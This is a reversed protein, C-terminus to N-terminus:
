IISGDICSMHPRDVNTRLCLPSMPLSCGRLTGPVSGFAGPLSRGRPPQFVGLTPRGPLSRGRSPGPVSGM